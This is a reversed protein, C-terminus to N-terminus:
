SQLLKLAMQPLSNAQALMAIGAQTLVSNRTLASTETATDVDTIGAKAAELNQAQVNVISQAASLRNSMYGLTSNYTNLTNLASNVLGLATGANTASTLDCTAGAATGVVANTGNLLMGRAQQSNNTTAYGLVGAAKASVQLSYNGTNTDKVVSAANYSSATQSAANMLNAIQNLSYTTGAVFNVSVAAEAGFQFAFNGGGTTGTLAVANPDTITGTSVTEVSQSGPNGLGLAAARMDAGAFSIQNSTGLGTDFAVTATSTLVNVGNFNAATANQTIQLADQQFENDMLTRQASTYTGTSSQEALQAMRTLLSQDTGLAGGSTQLLSIADQTNRSGQQLQAINATMTSSVAMGAADDAASNIRLGSSLRQVSTGLASYSKSLNLAANNAM